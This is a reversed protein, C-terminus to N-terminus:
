IYIKKEIKGLYLFMEGPYLLNKSPKMFIKRSFTSMAGSVIKSSFSLNTPWYTPIPVQLLHSFLLMNWEELWYLLRLVQFFGRM